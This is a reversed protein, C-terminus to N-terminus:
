NENKFKTQLMVKFSHLANGHFKMPIDWQSSACHVIIMVRPMMGKSNNSKTLKGVQIKVPYNEVIIYSTKSQLKSM